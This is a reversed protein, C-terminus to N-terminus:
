GSTTQACVSSAIAFLAVLTAFTITVHTDRM